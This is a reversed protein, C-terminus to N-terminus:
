IRCLVTTFLVNISSIIYQIRHCEVYFCSSMLILPQSLQDTRHTHNWIVPNKNMNYCLLPWWSLWLSRFLIAQSLCVGVSWGSNSNWGKLSTLDQSKNVWDKSTFFNLAWKGWLETFIYICEWDEVFMMCFHFFTNWILIQLLM